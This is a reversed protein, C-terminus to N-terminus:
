CCMEAATLGQRWARLSASTVRILLATHAVSSGLPRVKKPLFPSPSPLPRPSPSGASLCSSRWRGRPHSGM